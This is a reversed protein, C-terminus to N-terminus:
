RLSCRLLACWRERTAFDAVKEAATATSRLEPAVTDCRDFVAEAEAASDATPVLWSDDTRVPTLGCCCTAGVWRCLVPV